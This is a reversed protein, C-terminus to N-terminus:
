NNKYTKPFNKKEWFILFFDKREFLIFYFNFNRFIELNIKRFFTKELFKFKKEKFLKRGLKPARLGPQVGPGRVDGM